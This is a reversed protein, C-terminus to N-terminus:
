ECRLAILPDVRTARRAPIYCAVLSVISLLAAVAVLTLPDKAGVGFLLTAIVRTLVIAGVFGICLGIVVLSMGQCIVLQLVDRSQAGLAMRIGIEQTRQTVSYSIVGHIGVGTLVLAVLAFLGLLVMNSRREALSAALVADMTRPQLAPLDKDIDRISYLLASAIANPDGTTRVVLHMRSLPNYTFFRQQQYPLYIESKAEKDLGFGRVDGVIGVITIWPNESKFRLRQGIANENPFFRRAFSQNVLAVPIASGDDTDAFARGSIIPIGMVRFYDSSVLRNQVALSQDLNDINGRGDIFFNSNHTGMALPLDDTAGIAIVGPLGKIREMAQTYFATQRTVDPYSYQPLYVRTTLISDSEFGPNVRFLGIFSRILLGAGVLLIMSLAVESVTLLKRLRLGGKSAASNRGGETLAAGSRTSTLQFAPALGFLISTVLSLVLAYALVTLDISAVTGHLIGAPSLRTLLSIGWVALVLGFTGGILFLLVSETLLQRLLRVRSAGLARRIGIERQRTSARALQLNAVNACAILLVFGVAGFLLLLTLRIDGVVQEHLPILKVGFRSMSSPYERALRETIVRMDQDAQGLTVGPKLRAIISLYKHGRESDSNDQPLVTPVWLGRSEFYDPISFDFEQPLVGIVLYSTADLRITHGIIRQNSGFRQEWLRYSLVVVHDRGPQTDEGVFTRGLIPQVALLDFFEATVMGSRIRESDDGGVLTFDVANFTAMREFVQNQQQYDLFSPASFGTKGRWGFGGPNTGWVMVIQDPNKYPLPRLLTANIVSFIATNAGIGLALTLVAVLTFGPQKRLMRAALRLDQWLDAVLNIRRNTGLVIPEPAVQREVRRLEQAWVESESLEALAARYAEDESAGDALLEEYCDDLHQALEEVIAAERAPALKLTALKKRIEEKWDPMMPDKAPNM